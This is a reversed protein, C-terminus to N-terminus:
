FESGFKNAEATLSLKINDQLSSPGRAVSNVSHIVTLGFDLETCSIVDATPVRTGYINPKVHDKHNKFGGVREGGGWVPLNKQMEM